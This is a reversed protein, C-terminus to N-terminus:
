GAPTCLGSLGPLQELVAAVGDEDNTLTVTRAVAQLERVANGVAVPYGCHEFLALDNYDDGFAMAQDATIGLRDLVIRLGYAKSVSVPMIQILQRNDTLIMNVESGFQGVLAEYIGNGNSILLKTIPREAMHGETMVRPKPASAPIGLTKEEGENLERFSWMEDGSEFTVYSGRDHLEMYRYVSQVTDNPIYAVHLPVAGRDTVVGGNYCIWYGLQQLERPLLERVSRPPRATAIIIAYGRACCDLVARRSRASVEKASNLLTGDLDLVVARIANM